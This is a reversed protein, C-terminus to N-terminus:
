LRIGVIEEAMEPLIQWIIKKKATVDDDDISSCAPVAVSLPSFTLM